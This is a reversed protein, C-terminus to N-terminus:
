WAKKSIAFLTTALSYLSSAIKAKMKSHTFTKIIKYLSKYQKSYSHEYYGQWNKTMEKAILDSNFDYNLM